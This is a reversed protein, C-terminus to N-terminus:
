LFAFLRTVSFMSRPLDSVILGAIDPKVNLLHKIAHFFIHVAAVGDNIYAIEIFLEGILEQDKFNNDWALPIIRKGLADLDIEGNLYLKHAGLVTIDAM